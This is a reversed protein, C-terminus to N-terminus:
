YPITVKMLDDFARYYALVDEQYSTDPNYYDLSGICDYVMDAVGGDNFFINFADRWADYDNGSKMAAEIVRDALNKADILRLYKEQACLRM